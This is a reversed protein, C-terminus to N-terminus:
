LILQLTQFTTKEQAKEAVSEELSELVGLSLIIIKM